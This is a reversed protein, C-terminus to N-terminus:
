ATDHQHLQPNAPSRNSAKNEVLDILVLSINL